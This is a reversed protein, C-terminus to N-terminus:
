VEAHRPTPFTDGGFSYVETEAPEIITMGTQKLVHTKLDDWCTECLHLTRGPRFRVLVIDQEQHCVACPIM